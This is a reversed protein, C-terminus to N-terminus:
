QNAYTVPFRVIIWSKERRSRWQGFRHCRWIRKFYGDERRAKFVYKGIKVVQDSTHCFGRVPYSWHCITKWRHSPRCRNDSQLWCLWRIIRWGHKLGILLKKLTARRWEAKRYEASLNTRWKVAPYTNESLKVTQIFHILFSSELIWLQANNNVVWRFGFSGPM